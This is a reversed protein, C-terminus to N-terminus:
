AASDLDNPDVALLGDASAIVKDYDKADKYIPLLQEYIWAISTAKPFDAVFKELLALKRPVTPEQQIRQILIGDASEPDIDPKHRDARLAGSAILLTALVPVCVRMRNEETSPSDILFESGFRDFKLAISLVKTGSFHTGFALLM